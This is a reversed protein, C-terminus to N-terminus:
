KSFHYKRSCHTSLISKKLLIQFRDGKNPKINSENYAFENYATKTQSADIAYLSPRRYYLDVRNHCVFPSRIFGGPPRLLYTTECSRKNQCKESIFNM